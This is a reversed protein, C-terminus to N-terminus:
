NRDKYFNIKSVQFDAKKLMIEYSDAEEPSIKNKFQLLDLLDNNYDEMVKKVEFFRQRTLEIPPFKVM